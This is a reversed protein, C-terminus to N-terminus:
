TNDECRQGFGAEHDAEAENRAGGGEEEEANGESDAQLLLDGGECAEGRVGSVEGEGGEASIGATDLEREPGAGESHVGEHVRRDKDGEAEDERKSRGRGQIHIVNKKEEEKYGDDFMDQQIQKITIEFQRATLGLKKKLENEDKGELVISKFMEKYAVTKGDLLLDVQYYFRKRLDQYYGLIEEERMLLVELTHIKRQAVTNGRGSKLQTIRAKYFDVATKQIVIRYNIARVLRKGFMLVSSSHEPLKEDSYYGRSNLTSSFTDKFEKM